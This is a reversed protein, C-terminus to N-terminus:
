NEQKGCYCLRSTENYEFNIIGINRNNQEIKM